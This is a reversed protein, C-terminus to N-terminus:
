IDKFKNNLFFIWVSSWLMTCYYVQSSTRLLCLMQLRTCHIIFQFQFQWHECGDNMSMENTNYLFLAFILPMENKFVYVFWILFTFMGIQPNCKYAWALEFDTALSTRLMKISHISNIWPDTNTVWESVWERYTEMYASWAGYVNRAYVFCIASVYYACRYVIM